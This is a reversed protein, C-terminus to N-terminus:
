WRWDIWFTLFNLWNMSFLARLFDFQETVEEQTAPIEVFNCETGTQGEAQWNVCQKTGQNEQALTLSQEQAATRAKSIALDKAIQLKQADDLQTVTTVGTTVNVEIVTYPETIPTAEVSVSTEAIVTPANQNKQETITKAIEQQAQTELQQQTPKAFEICYSWEEKTTANVEIGKGQGQACVAGQGAVRTGPIENAQAMPGILALATIAIIKKM